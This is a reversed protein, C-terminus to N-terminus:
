IGAGHRLSRLAIQFSDWDRVSLATLRLQMEETLRM